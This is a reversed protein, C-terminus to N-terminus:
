PIGGLFASMTVARCDRSTAGTDLDKIQHTGIIRLYVVQTSEFVRKPCLPGPMFLIMKPSAAAASIEMAPKTMACVLWDCTSASGAVRGSRPVSSRCVAVDIGGTRATIASRVGRAIM